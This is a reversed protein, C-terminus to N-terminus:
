ESSLVSITDSFLTSLLFNSGLLSSIFLFLFNAYHIDEASIM